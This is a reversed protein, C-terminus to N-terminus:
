RALHIAVAGGLPLSDGADPTTGVAVGPLTGKEDVSDVTEVRLGAAWVLRQALELTLGFIDPVAVEPPGGSLTLTVRHGRTAAVGSPPDQWTVFGAPVTAHPERVVPDAVFGARELQVRAENEELGLVRPVSEENPLLPESSPFLLLAALLYGGATMVAVGGVLLLLWRLWSGRRAPV